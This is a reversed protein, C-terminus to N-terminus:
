VSSEFVAHHNAFNAVFRHFRNLIELGRRLVDVQLISHKQQHSITLHRSKHDDLASREVRSEKLLRKDFIAALAEEVLPKKKPTKMWGSIANQAKLGCYVEGIKTGSESVLSPRNKACGPCIDFM